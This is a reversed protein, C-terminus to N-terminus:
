SWIHRKPLMLLKRPCPLVEQNLRHLRNRHHVEQSIAVGLRGYCSIIDIKIEKSYEAIPGLHKNHIKKKRKMTYTKSFYFHASVHEFTEGTKKPTSM